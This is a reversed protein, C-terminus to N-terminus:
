MKGKILNYKTQNLENIRNDLLKIELDKKM